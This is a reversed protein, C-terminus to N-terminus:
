FLHIVLVAAQESWSAVGLITVDLDFLKLEHPHIVAGPLGDGSGVVVVTTITITIAILSTRM